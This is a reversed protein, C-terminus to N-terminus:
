HRVSLASDLQEILALLQKCDADVQKFAEEAMAHMNSNQPLATGADLMQTLRPLMLWQVWEHFHLTDVCFPQTSALAQKSPPTAAWLQLSRMEAEIQPLLQKVQAERSM